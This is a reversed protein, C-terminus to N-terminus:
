RYLGAEMTEVPLFEGTGRSRNLADAAVCAAYGDWAVPRGARGKELTQGM